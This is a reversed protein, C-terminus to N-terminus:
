HGDNSIKMEPHASTFERNQILAKAAAKKQREDVQSNPIFEIAKPLCFEVCTPTTGCLDCKLISGDDHLGIGGCPCVLLCLKCGICLEKRYSVISDEGDRYLAGTPCTEMCLPRDCHQCVVPVDLGKDEWKVIRIRSKSSNVENYHYLSCVVECMRCGTCKSPDIWWSHKM